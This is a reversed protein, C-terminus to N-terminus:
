YNEKVHELCDPCYKLGEHEKLEDEDFYNGCYQCMGGKFITYRERGTPSDHHFNQIELTDGDTYTKKFIKFTCDTDPLIKHLFDEADKARFAKMCGDKSQWGFNKVEAAFIMEPSFKHLIGELEYVFDKWNFDIDDPEIEDDDWELIPQEEAMNM